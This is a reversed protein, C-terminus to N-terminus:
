CSIRMLVVNNIRRGQVYPVSLATCILVVLKKIQHIRQFFMFNGAGVPDESSGELIRM